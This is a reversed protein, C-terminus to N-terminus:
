ETEEKLQIKRGKFILVLLPIIFVGVIILTSKINEFKYKEWNVFSILLLASVGSFTLLIIRRINDKVNPVIKSLCKNACITFLSIKVLAALTWVLMFVAEFHEIIRTSSFSSLSFFPLKSIYVYDGLTVYVALTVLITVASQIGLYWYVTKAPSSKLNGLLIVFAILEYSSSIVKPFTKSVNYVPDRVALNLQYFDMNHTFTFIVIAIVAIIFTLIIATARAFTTINHATIYFAAASIVIIVAWYAYTDSFCYQLFFLLDGMINIIAIVSLVLYYIDAGVTEVIDRGNTKKYFMVTPIVLLMMLMTVLIVSISFLVGNEEKSPMYTMITFLKSCILIAIFQASTIKDM